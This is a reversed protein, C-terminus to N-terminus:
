TNGQHKHQANQRRPKTPEEFDNSSNLTQKHRLHSISNNSLTRNKGKLYMADVFPPFFFLHLHSLEKQEVASITATLLKYM